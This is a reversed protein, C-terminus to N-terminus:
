RGVDINQLEETRKEHQIALVLDVSEQIEDKTLGAKTLTDVMKEVVAKVFYPDCSM